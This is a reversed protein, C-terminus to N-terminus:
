DCGTKIHNPLMTERVKFDDPIDHDDDQSSRPAGSFLRAQDGLVANAASSEATAQYSPPPQPYYLHADPDEQPAPTYKPGSM